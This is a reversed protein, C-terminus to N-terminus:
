PTPPKVDASNTVQSWSGIVPKGATGTPDTPTVTEEVAGYTLTIEEMPPEDGSGSVNIKTIFVMTFRLVYYGAGTTGQKRVTLTADNYSSGTALAQFLKPSTGDINKKIVLNNLKAKGAGAGTSASSITTMNESGFSFEKVAIALADPKISVAANRNTGFQITADGAYVPTFAATALLCFGTLTITLINKSKM